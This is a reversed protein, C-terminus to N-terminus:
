GVLWKNEVREDMGSGDEVHSGIEGGLGEGEEREGDWALVGEGARREEAEGRGRTTDVRDTWVGIGTTGKM